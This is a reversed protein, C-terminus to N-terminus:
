GTAAAREQIGFIDYALDIAFKRTPRVVKTESWDAFGVCGHVVVAAM